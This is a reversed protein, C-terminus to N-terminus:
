SRVTVADRWAAGMRDMIKALSSVMAFSKKLYEAM